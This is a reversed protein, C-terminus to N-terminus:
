FETHKKRRILHFIGVVGSAVMGLVLLILAPKKKEREYVLM